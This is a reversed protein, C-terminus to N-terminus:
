VGKVRFKERDVGKRELAKLWKPTPGKGAYTQGEPGVYKPKMKVGADRRKMKGNSKNGGVLDDFDIGAKQAASRLDALLKTKTEDRRIALQQEAQKILAM